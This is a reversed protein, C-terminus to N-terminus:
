APENGKGKAEKFVRLKNARFLAESIASILYVAQNSRTDLLDFDRLRLRATLAGQYKASSARIRCSEEDPCPRRRAKEACGAHDAALMSTKM